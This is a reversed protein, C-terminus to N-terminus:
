TVFGFGSAPSAFRSVEGCIQEGPEGVCTEFRGVGTSQEVPNILLRKAQGNFFAVVRILRNPCRHFVTIHRRQMVPDHPHVYVVLGPNVASSVVGIVFLYGSLVEFAWNHFFSRDTQGVVAIQLFM